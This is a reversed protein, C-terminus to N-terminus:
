AHAIGLQFLLDVFALAIIGHTEKENLRLYCNLLEKLSPLDWLVNATALEEMSSKFDGYPNSSAVAKQISQKCFASTEINTQTFTDSLMESDNEGIKRTGSRTHCSWHESEGLCLCENQKEQSTISKSSCPSFFIRKPSTGDLTFDETGNPDTTDGAVVTLSSYLGGSRAIKNRAAARISILEEMADGENELSLYPSSHSCTYHSAPSSFRTAGDAFSCPNMLTGPQFEWSFPVRPTEASYYVRFSPSGVSTAPSEKSLPECYFDDDKRIQLTRMQGVDEGGSLMM